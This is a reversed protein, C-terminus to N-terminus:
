SANYFAPHRFPCYDQVGRADPNGLRVWVGSGDSLKVCPPAHGAEIPGHGLIADNRTLPGTARKVGAITAFAALGAEAFMPTFSPSLEESGLNIWTIGRVGHHRLALMLGLVDGDRRPGAVLFGSNSYLTLVGPQNLLQPEAGPLTATRNTGAGFSTALTNAIAVLVLVCTAILRGVRPLRVIWGSGFVALYLLLPMCYRTDHVFTETIAFWAVLAGVTLEWALPSVLRRRAFGVITWTGGVLSFAFLPAYLQFNAISWSYWTLNAISFRAPAIGSKLHEYAAGTSYAAGEALAEVHSLSDIYWPLAIALAPLAFMLLGRWSRLGGRVLSVVVVGAVFFTFPEKTLMGLGVAVGAAASVWLRSFRESALILWVSVAVMATEPADTMFVHFQATILPSGLAFVVALLGARAGFALRGVHYCGLALLPVFVLNEAIVPPAVGLGGVWIGLAGVLYAFPPYPYSLTLAHGLHGARLQEYVDTTLSLHLGADFIPISRDQTLWWSTIGVFLAVVAISGWADASWRPIRLALWTPM